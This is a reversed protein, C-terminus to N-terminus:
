PFTKFDPPAIAANGGGGCRTGIGITESSFTQSTQSHKCQHEELQHTKILISKHKGIVSHHLARLNSGYHERTFILVIYVYMYYAQMFPGSGIAYSM